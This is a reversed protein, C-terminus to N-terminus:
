PVVRNMADVLGCQATAKVWALAEPDPIQGDGTRAWTLWRACLYHLPGYLLHRADYGVHAYHVAVLCWEEATVTAGLGCQLSEIAQSVHRPPTPTRVGRIFGDLGSRAHVGPELDRDVAAVAKLCEAILHSSAARDASVFVSM